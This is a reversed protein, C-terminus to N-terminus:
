SATLLATIDATPASPVTFKLPQSASAQTSATDSPDTFSVLYNGSGEYQGSQILDVSFYGESNTTVTVASGLIVNSAAEKYQTPVTKFVQFKVAVNPLLNGSLDRLYGVINCTIPVTELEGFDYKITFSTITPTADTDTTTMVAFINLASNMPLPLSGVNSNITAADNSQGISGDSTAWASGNWWYKVGMIQVIFGLATNAPTSIVASFSLVDKVQFVQTPSINGSSFYENVSYQFTVSTVSEQSTGTSFVVSIVFPAGETIPLSAINTNITVAANSQAYSGDSSVWASGNWWMGNMIYHTLGSSFDAFSIATASLGDAISIAPCDIKSEIFSNLVSYGPTYNATHQVAPFVMFDRFFCNSFLSNSQDSGIVFLADSSNRTGTVTITSGFQIGNIFARSAGTTIDVNFEIEYETGSVPSWAGMTSNFLPNGNQDYITAYLGGDTNHFLRLLNNVQGVGSSISFLMTIAAPAGSYNPTLKFRLAGTQTFDANGTGSFSLFKNNGTLDLKGGTIGAGGTPTGTLNGSGFDANIMSSFSAAFSFGPPPYIKQRLLGGVFEAKTNDYAFGTASTFAQNDTFPVVNNALKGVNGVVQTQVKNFNTPNTFDVETTISM